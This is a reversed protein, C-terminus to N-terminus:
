IHILSLIVAPGTTTTSGITIRIAGLHGRVLSGIPAGHVFASLAPLPVPQSRSVPPPAAAVTQKQTPTVRTVPIPQPAPSTRPAPSPLRGAGPPTVTRGTAVSPSQGAAAPASHSTPSGPQSNFSTAIGAIVVVAAAAVAVAGLAIRVSSGLHSGRVTETSQLTDARAPAASTALFGAGAAGGLFLPIVIARLRSNVTSLNPILASCEDCHDLHNEVAASDQKSTRKRTYAALKERCDGCDSDASYQVHQQLFAARLAERARYVLASTGNATLGLLPAVEGPAMGEVDIYWLVTQWREPLSLFADGILGDGFENGVPSHNLTSNEVATFDDTLTELSTKASTDMAVRRIVTYLYARFGVNPGGGRQVTAFVKAFSEAVLDEAPMSTRAYLRAVRLGAQSHRRFLEAFGARDGLRAAAILEADSFGDPATEPTRM